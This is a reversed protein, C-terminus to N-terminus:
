EFRHYERYCLMKCLLWWALPFYKCLNMLQGISDKVFYRGYLLAEQRALVSRGSLVQCYVLNRAVRGEAKLYGEHTRLTPTQALIRSEWEAVTPANQWRRMMKDLWDKQNRIINTGDSVYLPEPIMGWKGHAALMLWFEYDESIRLDERMLVQSAVETRITTSCTGVHCENGWYTYFDDIVFPFIPMKNHKACSKNENQETTPVISQCSDTAHYLMPTYSTGSVARNECVVSVAVCEPHQDLFSVTQEIYGSRWYDDADLLAVYRGRSQSMGWNRAKAPGANRQQLLHFLPSDERQANQSLYEERYISVTEDTSGDDVLWVEWKYNTQQAVISDLCRRLLKAGNYVPIVISLDM